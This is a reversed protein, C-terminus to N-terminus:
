GVKERLWEQILLEESKHQQRAVKSIRRFLAIKLGVYKHRPLKFRVDAVEAVSGLDSLDASDLLASAEALSLSRKKSGAM